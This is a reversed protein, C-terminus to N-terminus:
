SRTCPSPAVVAYPSQDYRFIDILRTTQNITSSLMGLPHCVLAEMMGAAGGAIVTNNPMTKSSQKLIKMGILNTAASPPPKGESGKISKASM